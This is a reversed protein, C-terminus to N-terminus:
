LAIRVQIINGVTNIINTGINILDENALSLGIERLKLIFRINQNM